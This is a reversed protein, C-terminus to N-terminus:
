KHLILKNNRTLRLRYTEGGHVIVAERRGQLLDETSWHPPSKSTIEDHVTGLQDTDRNKDTENKLMNGEEQM